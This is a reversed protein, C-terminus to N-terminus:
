KGATPKLRTLGRPSLASTKRAEFLPPPERGFATRSLPIVSQRALLYLAASLLSALPVPLRTSQMTM